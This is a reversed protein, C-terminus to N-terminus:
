LGTALLYLLKSLCFYDATTVKSIFQELRSRRKEVPCCVSNTCVVYHRENWTMKAWHEKNQKVWERVELQRKILREQEEPAEFKFIFCMQSREHDTMEALLSKNHWQWSMIRKKQEDPEQEIQKLSEIELNKRKMERENEEINKKADSWVKRDIYRFVKSPKELVVAIKLCQPCSLSHGEQITKRMTIAHSEDNEYKSKKSSFTKNCSSCHIGFLEEPQREIRKREKDRQRENQLADKRNFIVQKERYEANRKRLQIEAEAESNISLSTNIDELVMGGAVRKQSQAVWHDIAKQRELRRFKRKRERDRQREADAKVPDSRYKTIAKRNSEIRRAASM